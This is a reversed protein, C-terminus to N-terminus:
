APDGYRRLLCTSWRAKREQADSLTRAGEVEVPYLEVQSTGEWCGPRLVQHWRLLITVAVVQLPYHILSITM